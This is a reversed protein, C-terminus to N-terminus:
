YSRPMGLDHQAIYNLTMEDTVPAIRNLRLNRWHREVGSESIYGAGGLTQIARDAAFLAAKAAAFKAMAAQVGCERKQDYLWAAEFTKLKATELQIKAEALPFQLGQHTAIPKGWVSREKAYEVAKNVLYLGTGVSGAAIALREPNLVGYLAKWGQGEKGVLNEKPVELDDIFVQNTDMFRAGMKKFPRAEIKDSPLDAVMLSVGSTRKAADYPSTRCMIAIHQANAINSIFVKQGKVKYHDGCDTAETTIQTINSGSGPETFAGAWVDGSIIPPLYKEKQEQSGAGAILYGGFVPGCVFMGGGEGGGAPASSLAEAAICMELLGMGSGGFEESLGIGLLGQETLADWYEKPFRYDDDIGQWYDDDFDGAIKGCLDRLMRQEENFDFDV